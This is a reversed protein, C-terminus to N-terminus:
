GPHKPRSRRFCCDFSCQTLKAYQIILPNKAISSSTLLIEKPKWNVLFLPPKLKFNENQVWFHRNDIYQDDSGFEDM